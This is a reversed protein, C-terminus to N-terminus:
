ELISSNSTRSCCYHEQLFPNDKLLCFRNDEGWEREEEWFSFILLSFLLFFYLFNLLFLPLVEKSKKWNIRGNKEGLFSSFLSSFFFPLFKTFFYGFFYVKVFMRNKNTKNNTFYWIRKVSINTFLNIKIFM